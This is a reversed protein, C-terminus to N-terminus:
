SAEEALVELREGIDQESPLRVQYEAVVIREGLGALADRVEDRGASQCVM